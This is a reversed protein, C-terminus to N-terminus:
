LVIDHPRQLAIGAINKTQATYIESSLDAFVIICHNETDNVYYLGDAPNSVVSHQGSVSLPSIQFPDGPSARFMFRNNNLDTVIEQSGPGFAMHTPGRFQAPDSGPAYTTVELGLGVQNILEADGITIVGDKEVEQAFASVAFLMAPTLLFLLRVMM